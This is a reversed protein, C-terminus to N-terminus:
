IKEEKRQCESDCYKSVPQLKELLLAASHETGFHIAQVTWILSVHYDPVKNFIFWKKKSFTIWLNWVSPVPWANQHKPIIDTRTKEKFTRKEYNVLVPHLQQPPFTYPPTHIWGQPTINICTLKLLWKPSPLFNQTSETSRFSVNNEYFIM